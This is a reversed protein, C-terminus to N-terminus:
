DNIEGLNQQICGWLSRTNSNIIDKKMSEL